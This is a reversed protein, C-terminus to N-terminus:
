PGSPCYLMSRCRATCHLGELSFGGFRSSPLESCPLYSSSFLSFCGFQRWSTPFKYRWILCPPLHIGRKEPALFGTLGPMLDTLSPGADVLNNASGSQAGRSRLVRRQVCGVCLRLIRAQKAPLAPCAGCGATYTDKTPCSFGEM